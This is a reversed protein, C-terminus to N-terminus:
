YGENSQRPVYPSSNMGGSQMAQVMIKQREVENSERDVQTREREAITKMKTNEEKAMALEHEQQMKQSMLQAQMMQQQQQQAQQQQMQEQAKPDDHDQLQPPLLKKLRESIEQAGPWDMNEAVLDMIAMGAQPNAQMFQMMSDASELRQTAYSAGTSVAVDYKGQSLDNIVHEQRTAPDMVVKNITVQQADKRDLGLVRIVRETDYIRPILDVLITGCYEIATSMNDVYTFTANDGESQRARIAKGSTENGHAGLSADYMGTTSKIDDSAGMAMAIEASPMIPPQARQPAGGTQSGNYFLYPYNTTNANTWQEEFGEIQEPTVLYPAKPALAIAETATTKWYNYMRQADKSHHIAGYTSIKGENDVEEGVVIIIPIYEGPWVSHELVAHACLKYFHVQQCEVERERVVTLPESMEADQGEQGLSRPTALEKLLDEVGDQEMDITTGDSLMAIKKHYPKKVWYEAVRINGSDYWEKRDEHGEFAHMDVDPYLEEFDEKPIMETVFMYRADSRTMEKANPDCYVTLPNTIRRIRIDQEFGDNNSYETIVRWAGFGGRSACAFATDYANKAKSQDEINRILGSYIEAVKIDAESDVPRVKIGIENKRYDGIIQKLVANLKNVTLTPRDRGRLNKVEDPWQDDTTAFLTDAKYNDRNHRDADYARDFRKVAEKLIADDPNEDKKGKKAKKSPVKDYSDTVNM